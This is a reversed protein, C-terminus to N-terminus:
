RRNKKPDIAPGLAMTIRAMADRLIDLQDEASDTRMSEIANDTENTIKRIERLREESTKKKLQPLPEEKDSFVRPM